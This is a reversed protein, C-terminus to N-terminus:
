HWSQGGDTSEIVQVARATDVYVLKVTGESTVWCGGTANATLGTDNDFSLDYGGPKWSLLGVYLHLTTRDVSAVLVEQTPFLRYACPSERDTAIQVPAEWGSRIYYLIGNAAAIVNRHGEDNQWATIGGDARDPAFDYVVETLGDDYRRERVTTPTDVGAEYLWVPEGPLARLPAIGPATPLLWKCRAWAPLYDLSLEGGAEVVHKSVPIIQEVEFEITTDGTLNDAFTAGDSVAVAPDTFAFYAGGHPFQIRITDLTTPPTTGPMYGTLVEVGDLLMAIDTRTAGNTVEIRLTGAMDGGASWDRVNGDAGGTIVLGAAGCELYAAAPNFAAPPIHYDYNLQFVAKANPNSGACINLLEGGVQLESIPYYPDGSM